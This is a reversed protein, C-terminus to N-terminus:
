RLSSDPYLTKIVSFTIIPKGLARINTKDAYVTSQIGVIHKDTDTNEANLKRKIESKVIGGGLYVCM